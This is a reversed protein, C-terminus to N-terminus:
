WEDEHDRHGLPRKPLEGELANDIVVGIVSVVLLTPDIARVLIFTEIKM